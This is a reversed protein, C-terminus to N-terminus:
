KEQEKIKDILESVVRDHMDNAVNDPTGNCNDCVEEWSDGWIGWESDFYIQKMIDAEIYGRDEIAEFAMTEYWRRHGISDMKNERNRFAGATSVIWKRDKYELLTNRRFLCRDSCIFHGAWGRETVNVENIIM